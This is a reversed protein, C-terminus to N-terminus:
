ICIVRFIWHIWNSQSPKRTVGPNRLPHPRNLGWSASIPVCVINFWHVSLHLRNSVFSFIFRRLALKTLMISISPSEHRVRPQRAVTLARASALMLVLVVRTRSICWNCTYQVYLSIYLCLINEFRCTWTGFRVISYGLLCSGMKKKLRQILPRLFIHHWWRSSSTVMTVIGIRRRM